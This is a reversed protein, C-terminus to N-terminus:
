FSKFTQIINVILSIIFLLKYFQKYMMNKWLDQILTLVQKYQTERIPNNCIWRALLKEEERLNKIKM